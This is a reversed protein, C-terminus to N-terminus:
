DLTNKLAKEHQCVLLIYEQKCKIASKGKQQKWAYYKEFAMKKSNIDGENIQKYLSYITLKFEVSMSTSEAMVRPVMDVSMNYLGTILEEYNDFIEITEFGIVILFPKIFKCSTDIPQINVIGNMKGYRHLWFGFIILTLLVIAYLCFQQNTELSRLWSLSM